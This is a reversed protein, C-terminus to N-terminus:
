HSIYRARITDLVGRQELRGIAANIQDLDAQTTRVANLMLHVPAKFPVYPLSTLPVGQQRAEYRLAAADGMILEARGAAFMRIGQQFSNFTSLRGGAEIGHMSRAYDPGYWGVKPALLTLQQDSVDDFSSIQQYQKLKGPTTFLGVIEYRYPVSFRAYARREPTSNAALMLDLNGNQFMLQRRASPLEQQILLTCGAEHMIATVLELDLGTLRARADRYIYPPWQEPAMKLSCALAPGTCIWCVVAIFFHRAGM